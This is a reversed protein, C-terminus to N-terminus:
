IDVILLSRELCLTIRGPIPPELDFSGKFLGVWEETITESLNIVVLTNELDPVTVVPQNKRKEGREFFIREM